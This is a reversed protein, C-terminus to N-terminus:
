ANTKAAAVSGLGGGIAGGAMAGAPSGGTAAAGAAAGVITGAATWMAQRNAADAKERALKQEIAAKAQALKQRTAQDMEQIRGQSEMQLTQLIKKHAEELMAVRREHALEVAQQKGLFDERSKASVVAWDALQQNNLAARGAEDRKFRLQDNFAARDLQLGLQSLHRDLAIRSQNLRLRRDAAQESASNQGAQLTNGAQDLAVGAQQKAAGLAAQGAQAMSAGASAQLDAKTPAGAPSDTSVRRASERAAVLNAADVASGADNRPFRAM